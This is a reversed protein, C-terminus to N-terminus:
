LPARITAHTHMYSCPTFGPVSLVAPSFKTEKNTSKKLPADIKGM